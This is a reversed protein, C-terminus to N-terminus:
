PKHDRVLDNARLEALATDFQEVSLKVMAKVADPDRTNTYRTVAASVQDAGTQTGEGTKLTKTPEPVYQWVNDIFRQMSAADIAPLVLSAPFDHDRIGAAIGLNDFSAKVAKRGVELTKPSLNLTTDGSLQWRDGAKNEVWVGHGTAIATNLDDHALRAFVSLFQAKKFRMVSALLSALRPQTAPGWSGVLAGDKIDLTALRASVGPNALLGTAIDSALDERNNGTDLSKKAQDMLAIKDIMHGASFADTLFHAAFGNLLVALNSVNGSGHGSAQAELLARKHLDIWLAKNRPAFHSENSKNLEMYRDDKPRWRESWEQWESESPSTGGKGSRAAEDRDILAMLEKLEDAKAGILAEPTRYYDGMAILYRADIGSLGAVSVSMGAPLFQVHEGSEYRQLRRATRNAAASRLLRGVARNGAARQLGLLDQERTTTGPLATASARDAAVPPDTVAETRESVSV